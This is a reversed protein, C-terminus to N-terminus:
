AAASGEDEILGRELLFSRAIDYPDEGNQAGRYNLDQMAEDSLAQELEMCADYVEPHENM